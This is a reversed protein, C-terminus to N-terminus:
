WGARARTQDNSITAGGVIIGATAGVVAATVFFEGGAVKELDEDSLELNSLDPPLAFNILKDTNEHVAIQVDGPLKQGSYKEFATKPDALMENRFSEDKAAQVMIREQVDALTMKESM